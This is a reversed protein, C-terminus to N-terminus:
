SVQNTPLTITFRSGQGLGDSEARVQGRHTEVIAKVIALGLGSGGSERSRSPDTRYFRDFIHTIQEPAIGEGSDQIAIQLSDQNAQLSVTVTGGEPTYYIANALLNHLVQRIRASDVDMLPVSEPLDVTLAVNDEEALPEFVTITERILDAIDTPQRNLPLQASEALTLERLDNVLEILHDTQSYLNAIREDDLDVVHDLAARLNGELVTLPTRLEHSVDALLNNRTEAAQQLDEAMKNFANALEDIEQSSRSLAVRTTLNGAGIDRAATVLKTMPSVLLWSAVAGGIMGVVSAVVVAGLLGEPIDHWQIFGDLDARRNRSDRGREDGFGQDSQEQATETGRESGRPDPDMRYISYTLFSYLMFVVFALAIISLIVGGMLMSMRVWLRRM